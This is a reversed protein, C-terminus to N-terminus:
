DQLNVGGMILTYSLNRDSASKSTTEEKKRLESMGQNKLLLIALPSSPKIPILKYM